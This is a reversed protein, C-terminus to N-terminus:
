KPSLEIDLLHNIEYEMDQNLVERDNFPHGSLTVILTLFLLALGTIWYHLKRDM